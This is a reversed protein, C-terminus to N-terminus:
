GLYPGWAWFGNGHPSAQAGFFGARILAVGNKLLVAVLGALMGVASAWVLVARDSRMFFWFRDWLDSLIVRWLWAGFRKIISTMASM